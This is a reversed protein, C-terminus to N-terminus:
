QGDAVTGGNDCAARYRLCRYAAHQGVPESGGVDTGIADGLAPGARQGSPQRKHERPRQGHQRGPCRIIAIALAHAGRL